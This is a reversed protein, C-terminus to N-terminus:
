VRTGCCGWVSFRVRIESSTLVGSSIRGIKGGVGNRHRDVTVVVLLGKYVRTGGSDGCVAGPM